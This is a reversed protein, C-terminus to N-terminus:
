LPADNIDVLDILDGPFPIVRGDGAVYATLAYLLTQEFQQFAGIYKNRRLAASLVGFLLQYLDVGLIDEEDTAASKIADVLDDGAPDVRIGDAEVDVFFLLLLRLLIKKLVDIGRVQLGKAQDRFEQTAQGDDRM